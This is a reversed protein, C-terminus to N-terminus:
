GFILYIIGLLAIFGGSVYPIVDKFEKQKAFWGSFIGMLLVPSIITGLGFVCGMAAGTFASKSLVALGLLGILPPCPAAGFMVGSVYAMWKGTLKFNSKLICRSHLQFILAIGVLFLFVGMWKKPIGSAFYMGFFGALAGLITYATVRGISFIFSYLLGQKQNKATAIILPVILPACSLTCPGIGYSFGLVLANVIDLM